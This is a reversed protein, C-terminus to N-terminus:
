RQLRVAQDVGTPSAGKKESRATASTISGTAQGQAGAPGDDIAGNYAVKGDTSVIFM